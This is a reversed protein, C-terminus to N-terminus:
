ASPPEAPPPTGTPAPAHRVVLSGAWRDHLGQRRANSSVSILLIVQWLLVLVGLALSAVMWGPWPIVYVLAVLPGLTLVLWRLAASSWSLAQGSETEGVYLGLVRQGPSGRMLRWSLVFYVGNVAASAVGAFIWAPSDYADWIAYPDYALTPDTLLPLWAPLTVAYALV